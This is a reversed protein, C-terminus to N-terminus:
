SRQNNSVDSTHPMRANIFRKINTYRIQLQYTYHQTHTQTHTHTPTDLSKRKACMSHVIARCSKTEKCQLGKCQLGLRTYGAHHVQFKLTDFSGLKYKFCVHM